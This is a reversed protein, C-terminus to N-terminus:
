TRKGPVVRSGSLNFTRLVSTALTALEHPPPQMLRWDSVLLRMRRVRDHDEQSVQLSTSVENNSIADLALELGHLATTWQPDPGGLTHADSELAAVIAAVCNLGGSLAQAVERDRTM